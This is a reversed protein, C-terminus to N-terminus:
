SGEATCDWLCEDEPGVGCVDCGTIQRPWVRVAHECPDDGEEWDAIEDKTSPLGEHTACIIESIWGRTRGYTVWEAFTVLM